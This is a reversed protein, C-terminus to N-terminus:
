EELSETGFYKSEYQARPLLGFIQPVSVLNWFGELQALTILALIIKALRRALPPTNPALFIANAKRVIQISGLGNLGMLERCFEPFPGDLLLLLIPNLLFCGSCWWGDFWIGEWYESFSEHAWSRIWVNALIGITWYGDAM